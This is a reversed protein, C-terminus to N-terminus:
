SSLMKMKYFMLLNKVEEYNDKKVKINTLSPLHQTFFIQNNTMEFLNTAFSHPYPFDPDIELIVDEVQQILAKYSRFFGDKNKSTLLNIIELL